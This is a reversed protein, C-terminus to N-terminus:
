LEESSTFTNSTNERHEFESIYIKLLIIFYTLLLPGFILGMFGFLNLGVIVGLVTVIPHVNGMKKMLTLRAVYDVNGTIILSYFSLSIAQWSLGQAFLVIVLPVWIIMTGVLPFFAFLGTIVGWLAWDQLGFIWYGIAAFIGQIICILPIGLANAKVMLTTEKALTRINEPKLPIIENLYGEIEKGNVLLYYFLFFMMLLNAFINFTSNVIQLLLISIKETITKANSMTLISIGTREKIQAAATQVGQIVKEQNDAISHIKPSVLAISFYIPITIIILYFFIIALASLGRKWKNVFVLKYFFTRSLVFLTIGGLLGPIFVKLQSILLATIFIILGFLFIQRLRQNFHPTTM